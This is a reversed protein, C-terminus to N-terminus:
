NKIIKKLTKRNKSILQLFYVGSDLSDINIISNTSYLDRQMIKRGNIDFIVFSLDELIDISELNITFSSNVPNPFINFPITDFDNTSLTTVNLTVSDTYKLDTNSTMMLRFSNGDFSFPVQNIQLVNTNVGSFSPNTGGDQLNVWNSNSNKGNTEIQWQYSVANNSNTVFSVNGNEVINQDEPQINILIETSPCDVDILFNTYYLCNTNVNRVTVYIIMNEILNFNVTDNIENIELLSDIEDIYYTFIYNSPDNGNLINGEYATLDFYPNCDALPADVTFPVEDIVSNDIIIMIEDEAQDSCGPRTTIVKWTGPQSVNITPVSTTMHYVNNLYWNYTPQGPITPVQNFNATIDIGNFTSSCVIQDPGLSVGCVVECNISAAGTTGINTQEIKFFGAQNSYNTTLIVYYEDASVNNVTVTEINSASYSCDVVNNSITTNGNFGYLGNGCDINDTTFPGWCIFDIDLNNYDPSNNGQSLTFVLDGPSAVKFIFWSPNPTTGLCEAVGVSPVDTLTPILPVDGCIFMPSNCDSSQALGLTTFIFTLFLLIIKM